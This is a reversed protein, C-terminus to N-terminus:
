LRDGAVVRYGSHFSFIRRLRYLLTARLPPRTRARRLAAPGDHRGPPARSAAADGAFRRWRRVLYRDPGFLSYLLSALDRDAAGRSRRPLGAHALSLWVDGGRAARLSRGAEVVARYGLLHDRLGAVLHAGVVAFCCQRDHSPRHPRARGKPIREDGM